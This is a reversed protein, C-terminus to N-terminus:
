TVSAPLNIGPALYWDDFMSVEPLVRTYGHATLLQFIANRSETYNHEITIVKPRYHTLDFTKLIDLESGETDMSLYDFDAPADYKTLLDNLSITQVDYTETGRRRRRAHSDSGRYAAITSLEKSRTESFTLTEGTHSWVCDTEIYAKPRNRRLDAHWSRAPEACIGTWGFHEELSHSNSLFVGDTSGFDCFFGNTKEGLAYLVFADQFIQSHSIGGKGFAYKLFSRVVPDSEDLIRNRARALDLALAAHRRSFPGTRRKGRLREGLARLRYTLASGM